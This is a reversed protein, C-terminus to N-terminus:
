PALKNGARAKASTLDVQSIEGNADIDRRFNGSGIAQGIGSKIASVDAASVLGSNTVDGHLFGVNAAYKFYTGNIMTPFASMRTGNPIALFELLLKNGSIASRVSATNQGFQGTYLLQSSDRVVYTASAVPQDFTFEIQHPSSSRRPETTVNGTLPKSLDIHIDFPGSAGHIMRSVAKTLTVPSQFGVHAFFRTRQSFFSNQIEGVRPFDTSQTNGAVWVGGGKALTISHGRDSNSGGLRTAFDITGASNIHAVFADGFGASGSAGVEAAPIASISPFASGSFTTGVFYAGGSTDAAVDVAYDDQGGFIETTSEVSYGSGTSGLKAVYAHSRSQVADLYRGAAFVKGTSPSIDLAYIEDSGSGGILGSYTLQNSANFKAIFGDSSGALLNGGLVAPFDWSSTTGAVFVNGAGDAKVANIMDSGNGGLYTAFVVGGAPGPDLKALFSDYSGGGFAPQTPAVTPFNQSLTPGGIVINGASDVDADYGYDDGSGGILRSYEVNGASGLRVVFADYGGAHAACDSVAFCTPFDASNTSGALYVKGDPMVRMRGLGEQMSGGITVHYAMQNTVPDIKFVEIQGAVNSSAVYVNGQADQGIRSTNVNGEGMVGLLSSYDLVPDIVLASQPDYKGIAFSVVTGEDCEELRFAADIEQRNVGAIQYAVPKRNIFEGGNVSIKLNGEQDIRASGGPVLLRIGAPDAGPAVEFDYEPAGDKEYYVLDIGDYVNQHRIRSFTQAASTWGVPNSGVYSRVATSLPMEAMLRSEKNGDLLTMRLTTSAKAALGPVSPRLEAANFVIAPGQNTIGLARSSGLAMYQIAGDEQKDAGTNSSAVFGSNQPLRFVNSPHTAEKANIDIASVSEPRMLGLAAWVALLLPKVRIEEPYAM